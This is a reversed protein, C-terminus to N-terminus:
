AVAIEFRLTYPAVPLHEGTVLANTPAAMPEFAILPEAAPAFIQAWCAGAGFRVRVAGAAFVAGPPAEFLDDYTRDGLPGSFAPVDETEGTPLGRGDLLHRRMAPIAVATTARDIALYPHWGFAVPVGDGAVTTTVRLAGDGLEHAIEVRHPPAFAPDDWDLAARVRDPARELVEWAGRAAPLGHIPLGSPDRRAASADIRACRVQSLRNAFPYLLPVGFTSGRERYAKLGGRLGLLERGGARLSAVVMGCEPVVDAELPGARLTLMTRIM